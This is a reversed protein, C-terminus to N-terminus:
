LLDLNDYCAGRAEAFKLWIDFPINKVEYIQCYTLDNPESANGLYALEDRENETLEEFDEPDVVFTEYGQDVMEDLADQEHSAWVLCIPGFEHAIIWPRVRNSNYENPYIIDNCKIDKGDLVMEYEHGYNGIVKFEYKM